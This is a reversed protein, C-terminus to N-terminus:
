LLQDAYFATTKTNSGCLWCQSFGFESPKSLRWNFSWVVTTLITSGYMLCLVWKMEWKNFIFLHVNYLLVECVGRFIAIPHCSNQYKKIFISLYIVFSYFQVFNPLSVSSSYIWSFFICVSFWFFCFVSFILFSCLFCHCSASCLFAPFCLVQSSNSLKNALFVQDLKSRWPLLSLFMPKRSLFQNRCM